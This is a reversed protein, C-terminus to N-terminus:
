ALRVTQRPVRLPPRWIGFERSIGLNDAMAAKSMCLIDAPEDFRILGMM